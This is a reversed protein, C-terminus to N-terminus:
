WVMIHLNLEAMSLGVEAKKNSLLHADESLEYIKEFSERFVFYRPQSIHVATIEEEHVVWGLLFSQTKRLCNFVM